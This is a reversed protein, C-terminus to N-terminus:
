VKRFLLFMFRCLALRLRSRGTDVPAAAALRSMRYFPPGAFARELVFEPRCQASFREPTRRVIVGQAGPLCYQGSRLLEPTRRWWWGYRLDGLFYPSLVGALVAGRPRTLQALRVFLRRLDEILNLPAFNATM